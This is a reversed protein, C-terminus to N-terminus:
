KFGLTHTRTHTCCVYLTHNSVWRKVVDVESLTLLQHVRHVLAVDDYAGAALDGYVSCEAAHIHTSRRNQRDAQRVTESLKDRTTFYGIVQQCCESM